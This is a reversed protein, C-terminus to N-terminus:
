AKETLALRVFDISFNQFENARLSIRRLFFNYALVAPLAVAIGIATAILAEGIPGAVVDIGAQGTSSIDQLANKIGWVTGFLGVFPASSGITALETMGWENAKQYNQLEQGLHRELVDEIGGRYKLADPSTKYFKLEDFGIMALKALDSDSKKAVESAADWTKATWFQNLFSIDQAAKKRAVVLKWVIVSWTVVSLLILFFLTLNVILSDM